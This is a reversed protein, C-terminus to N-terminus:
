YLFIIGFPLVSQSNIWLRTLNLISFHTCSTCSNSNFFSNFFTIYDHHNCTNTIYLIIIRLKNEFYLSLTVNNTSMIVVKKIWNWYYVTDLHIKSNMKRFSFCFFFFFFFFVNKESFNTSSNRIFSILSRQYDKIKVFDNTAEIFSNRAAKSRKIENISCFAEHM